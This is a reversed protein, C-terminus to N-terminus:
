GRTTARVVVFAGHGRGIKLPEIAGTEPLSRFLTQGWEHISFGTERLLGEVEPATFFTAERYFVSEAQRALYDQGIPSERDIFGMVLAGGPKLVRRAEVLMRTPSEVFCLTTVVLAHDFSADPFPLSEAVGEVCKVGRVAALALMARSPDVGITLGLPAAFRGTGVGIELGDGWWPVFARLALLESLYAAQHREFWADYRATHDDFPTVEPM